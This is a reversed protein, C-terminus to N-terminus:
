SLSAAVSVEEAEASEMVVEALVTVVLEAAAEEECVEEAEDAEEAEEEDEEPERGDPPAPPM